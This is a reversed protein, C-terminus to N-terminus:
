PPSLQSEPSLDPPHIGITSGTGGKLVKAYLVVTLIPPWGQLTQCILDKGVGLCDLLVEQCIERLYGGSMGMGM